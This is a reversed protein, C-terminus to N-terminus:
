REALDRMSPRDAWRWFERLRELLEGMDHVTMPDPKLAYGPADEWVRTPVPEIWVTRAGPSKPLQPPRKHKAVVRVERIGGRSPNFFRYNLDMGVNARTGSLGKFRAPLRFAEVAELHHRRVTERQSVPPTGPKQQAPSEALNMVDRGFLWDPLIDGDYIGLILKSDEEIGLGLCMDAPNGIVPFYPKFVDAFREMTDRQSIMDAM